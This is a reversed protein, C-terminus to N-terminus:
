AFNSQLIIEESSIRLLTEQKIPGNRLLFSKVISYGLCYGIWHPFKDTGDGYLYPLHNGVGKVELSTVFESKWIKQLEENSYRSNWPSQWEGGYLAEVMCEAMGEIILSEKLPIHEFDINLYDLRCCHHYEHALMAKLETDGLEPSVFLFIVGKYSAANKNMVIGDIMPRQKTLPFIFIPVEVGNWSKKLRDYEDQAIKWVNRDELQKLTNELEIVEVPDFLGNSLLEYHLEERPVNPFYSRLYHYFLEQQIFLSSEDFSSNSVEVLKELLCKTHEVSM